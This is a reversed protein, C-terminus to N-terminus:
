IKLDYQAYKVDTYKFTLTKITKHKRKKGEVIEMIETDISFTEDGIEVLQGRYKKGDSALVEVDNGVNKEYQMKTKFPATLSVSGVELEYDEQERDLQSQIYRNLEACFDVDVGDFADIEIVIENQASVKLDILEYKKDALYTETIERITEKQIMPKNFIFSIQKENEAFIFPVLRDGRDKMTCFYLM